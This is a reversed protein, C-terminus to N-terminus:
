TEVARAKRRKLYYRRNWDQKCPWCALKRGGNVLRLHKNDHGNKCQGLPWDAGNIRRGNEFNKLSRLHSLEACRKNKCTHDVTYGAPLEGNEHIWVARHVTTVITKGGENWGIQAYGHGGMSYRSVLCGNADRDANGIARAYVREPIEM